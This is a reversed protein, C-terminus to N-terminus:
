VGDCCYNCVQLQRTIDGSCHMRNNIHATRNVNITNRGADGAAPDYMPVALSM